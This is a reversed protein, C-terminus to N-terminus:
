KTFVVPFGPGSEPFRQGTKGSRVIVYYTGVANSKPVWHFNWKNQGKAYDFEFGASDSPTFTSSAGSPSVITVSPQVDSSNVIVGGITLSWEFDVLTGSSSVKFTVGAPPPLNRVNVFGYGTQVVQAVTI